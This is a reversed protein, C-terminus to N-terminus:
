DGGISIQSANKFIKVSGGEATGQFSYKRELNDLNQVHTKEPTSITIGNQFAIKYDSGGIKSPLDVKTHGSDVEDLTYIASTLEAEVYNVQKETGTDIVRARYDTFLSITGIALSLGLGVTM